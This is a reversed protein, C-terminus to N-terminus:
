ANAHMTPTTNTDMNFTFKLFYKRYLAKDTHIALFRLFKKRVNQNLLSTKYGRIKEPQRRAQLASRGKGATVLVPSPFSDELMTYVEKSM